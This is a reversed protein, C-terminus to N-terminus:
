VTGEAKMMEEISRGITHAFAEAPYATKGDDYSSYEPLDPAEDEAFLLKIYQCLALLGPLTTAKTNILDCGADDLEDYAAETPAVLRKYQGLKEGQMNSKEFAMHTNVAETHERAAKRHREIVEYIPDAQFGSGNPLTLAQPVGKPAMAAAALSGAGAVSAFAAVAIFRRRTTDIPTNIPPTIYVRDAKAM